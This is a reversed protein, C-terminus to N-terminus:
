QAVTLKNVLDLYEASQTTRLKEYDAGDMFDTNENMRKMLRKFTKDTYLQRFAERMKKIRYEPTGRPAMVIRDMSTGISSFGLEKFSPVEPFSELRESGAVGLIRIKGAAYLDSLSSVPAFTFDADGSLIAAKSPGGGKYPVFKVSLGSSALMIAGTTFSFGWKGSNSFVLKGPNAKGYDVLQQVSEFPSDDRVYLMPVARNLRWVTVLDKSTDYPLSEVHPQLQDIYNHSFLLTYGDPKARISAATGTQGGAGPMLKVIVPQGLYTPIISSFIRANLDHSGGASFPIILTIPRTPYPDSNEDASAIVGFGSLLITAFFTVIIRSSPM